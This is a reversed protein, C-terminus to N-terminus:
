NPSSYDVRAVYVGTASTGGTSRSVQLFYGCDSSPVQSAMITLVQPKHTGASQSSSAIIQPTTPNSACVSGLSLTLLADGADLVTASAASIALGDPVPVTAYVSWPGSWNIFNNPGGYSFVNSGVFSSFPLILPSQALLTRLSCSIATVDQAASTWAGTAADQPSLRMAIQEGETVPHSGVFPWTRIVVNAATAPVTSSGLVGGNSSVLEVLVTADARPVVDCSANAIASGSRASYPIVWQGGHWKVAGPGGSWGGVRTVVAAGDGGAGLLPPVGEGLPPTAATAMDVIRMAVGDDRVYGLGVPDAQGDPATSACGAATAVICVVECVSRLFGRM